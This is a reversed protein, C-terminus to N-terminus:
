FATPAVTRGRTVATTVAFEMTSCECLIEIYLDYLKVVYAFVNPRGFKLLM